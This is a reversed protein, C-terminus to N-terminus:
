DRDDQDGAQNDMGAITADIMEDTVTIAGQFQRKLMAHVAGRRSDRPKDNENM